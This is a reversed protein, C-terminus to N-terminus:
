NILIGMLLIKVYGGGCVCVCACVCVGEIRYEIMAKYTTPFSVTGNMMFKQKRVKDWIIKKKM